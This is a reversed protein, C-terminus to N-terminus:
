LGRAVVVSAWTGLLRHEVVPSAVAILLRRVVLFLLGRSAVVLSLRRPAVFVWHLWFFLSRSLFVEVSFSM